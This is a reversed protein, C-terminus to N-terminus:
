FFYFYKSSTRQYVLMCYRGLDAPKQKIKRDDNFLYWDNNEINYSVYHAFKVDGSHEVVSVLSYNIKDYYPSTFSFDLNDNLELMGSHISKEGLKNIMEFKIRIFLIEGLDLILSQFSDKHYCKNCKRETRHNCYLKILDILNFSKSSFETPIPLDLVFFPDVKKRLEKQNCNNCKYITINFSLFNEAYPQTVINKRLENM